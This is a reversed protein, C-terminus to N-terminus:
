SRPSTKAYLKLRNSIARQEPGRTVVIASILAVRGIVDAVTLSAVTQPFDSTPSTVKWGMFAGNAPASPDERQGVKSAIRRLPV